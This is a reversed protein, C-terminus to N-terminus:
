EALDFPGRLEIAPDDFAGIACAVGIPGETPASTGSV